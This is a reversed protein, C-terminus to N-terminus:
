QQICRISNGEAKEIFNPVTATTFSVDLIYVEDTVPNITSSWLKVHNGLFLAGTTASRFCSTPLKLLSDYAGQYNESSWTKMEKYLESITPVRFGSPCPNNEEWLNKTYATALWDGFPVIFKSLHNSFLGPVWTSATGSYTASNRKEHGDAARGWQYLDGFAAADTSSTAVQSAGLNRDLWTKGTIPNTVTGYNGVNVNNSWTALGTSDSTLVKNAGPSGGTIKIQGAVELKTSPTLTGIGVNGGTIATRGNAHIDLKDDLDEQLYVFDNDGFNLQSHQGYFGDGILRLAKNNATNSVTLSHTSADTGGIAVNNQYTINTTNDTWPSAAPITPKNTLDAYSGSFDDAANMDWGTTDPITPKNSLDTYSGSTAVTALTPKNTLDTYNGSFVAPPTQPQWGSANNFTLVQGSSAGKDILTTAYPVAQLKQLPTLATYNTETDKKVSVQLWLEMGDFSALGLDVGTLTFLGNNVSVGTHTSANGVTNAANATDYAQIKVDYTGVAPSGTDLLEGQYNFTHNITQAQLSMNLMLAM